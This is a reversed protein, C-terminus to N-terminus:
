DASIQKLFNIIEIQAVTDQKNYEILDNMIKSGDENLVNKNNFLMKYKIMAKEGNNIDLLEYAKSDVLVPYVHKLSCSNNFKLDYYGGQEFLEYLDVINDIWSQILDKDEPYLEQFEQLRGIEFSKFYVVIPLNTPMDKKLQQYLGDFNNDTYPTIYDKHVVEDWSDVVDLSYSFPIQAYNKYKTLPPIISSYTEFDFSVYGHILKDLFAKILEKNIAIGDKNNLAQLKIRQTNNLMDVEEKGMDEIKLSGIKEIIAKTNRWCQSTVELELISTSPIGCQNRFQCKKCNRSYFTEPEKEDNINEYTPLNKSQEKAFINEDEKRNNWIITEKFTRNGSDETELTVLSYEVEFDNSLNFEAMDIVYFLKPMFNAKTSYDKFFKEIEKFQLFLITIKNRNKIIYPAKIFFGNKEFYGGKLIINETTKLVGMTNKIQHEIDGSLIDIKNSTTNDTEINKFYENEFKLTLEDRDTQYNDDGSSEDVIYDGKHGHAALWAEKPCNYKQAYIKNKEEM